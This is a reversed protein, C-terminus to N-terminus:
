GPARLHGHLARRRLVGRRIREPPLGVDDQAVARGGVQAGDPGLVGVGDLPELLALRLTRAVEAEESGHPVEGVALERAQGGHVVVVAGRQDGDPRARPGVALAALVDDADRAEVRHAVALGLDREVDGVGHLALAQPRHEELVDGRGGPFAADPPEGRVDQRLVARHERHEPVRAVVERLPEVVAHDHDRDVEVRGLPRPGDHGVALVARLCARHLPQQAGAPDEQDARPRPPGPGGLGEDRLAHEVGRRLVGPVGLQGDEAGRAVDRRADRAHVAPGLHGVDVERDERDLRVRGDVGDPAEPPVASAADDDQGGPIGLGPRVAQCALALQQARRVRRAHADDPRRRVPQEGRRRARAQVRAEGLARRRRADHAHEALGGRGRDREGGRELPAPEADGRQDRRPVPRVHRAVVEHLVPLLVRAGLDHAEIELRDAVRALEGPDRAPQGAVLRDDGHDCPPGALDHGGPVRHPRRV